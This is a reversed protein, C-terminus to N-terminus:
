LDLAVQQDQQVKAWKSWGEFWSSTQNQLSWGFLPPKGCKAAAILCKSSASVIEQPIFAIFCKFCNKIWKWPTSGSWQPGSSQWYWSELCDPESRQFTSYRSHSQAQSDTITLITLHCLIVVREILLHNPSSHFGWSFIHRSKLNQNEMCHHHCPLNVGSINSSVPISVM